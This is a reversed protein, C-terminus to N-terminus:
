RYRRCALVKGTHTGTPWRELGRDVQWRRRGLDWAIVKGRLGNAEMLAGQLGHLVVKSNVRIETVCEQLSDRRKETTAKVGAGVSYQSGEKTPRRRMRRAATQAEYLAALQEHDFHPITWIPLGGGGHVGDGGDIGRTVTAMINNRELKMERHIDGTASALREEVDGSPAAMRADQGLTAM